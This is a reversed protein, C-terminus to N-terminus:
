ALVEFRLKQYHCDAPQTTTATRQTSRLLTSAEDGVFWVVERRVEKLVVRMSHQFMRFVVHSCSTNCLSGVKPARGHTSTHAGGLVEM